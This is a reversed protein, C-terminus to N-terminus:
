NNQADANDPSAALVKRYHVISDEHRGLGQLATGLNYHAEIYDPKITLAKRVFDIGRDPKNQQFYSIGLFHLAIHHRPVAKLLATYCAQAQGLNGSSHAAMAKNLLSDLERAGAM